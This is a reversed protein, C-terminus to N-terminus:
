IKKAGSSLVEYLFGFVEYMASFQNKEYLIEEIFTVLDATKQPNPCM